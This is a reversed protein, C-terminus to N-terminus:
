VEEENDEVQVHEPGYNTGFLISQCDFCYGSKILEREAPNYDPFADQITIGYAFSYKTFGTDDVQVTMARKCMPCKRFLKM